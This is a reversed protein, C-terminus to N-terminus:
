PWLAIPRGSISFLLQPAVRSAQAASRAENRSKCRRSISRGRSLSRGRRLRPRLEM